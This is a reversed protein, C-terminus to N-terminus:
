PTPTVEIHHREWVPDFEEAFIEFLIEDQYRGDCFHQARRRGIEKFGCARHLRVSGDNDAMAASHVKRLNIGTFAFRLVLLAAELGIGKKWESREGIVIGSSATRSIWNIQRISIAGVHRDGERLVIAFHLHEHQETDTVRKMWAQEVPLPLPMHQLLFRTVERDNLWRYYNPTDDPHSPRLYITKGTLFQPHTLDAM